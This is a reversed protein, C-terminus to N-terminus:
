FSVRGVCTEGTSLNRARGRFVDSGPGDEEVIRVEFSGSPGRTTRIRNFVLDGDHRIKVRWRDGNVNQDVEFEVEIGGDESSAKLEWDSRESCPGERSVERDGASAIQAPVVLAFTAILAVGIMRKM